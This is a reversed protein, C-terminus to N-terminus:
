PLFVVSFLKGISIDNPSVPKLVNAAKYHRIGLSFVILGLFMGCGATIFAAEWGYKNRMFAAMINCIFAGINIGMYFINFGADKLHKYQDTSYLNGLFTSISPKFFGNGIIVLAMSLYFYNLGELAFGIYGLGMLLGGIYVAKIYGLKRDALFGGLFPTLYTLPIYTGYLSYAETPDFGMCGDDKSEIMDLVFMGVMLYYGFREWMETLFLFPLGKPHRKSPTAEQQVIEM